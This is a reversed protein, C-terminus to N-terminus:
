KMMFEDLNLIANAVVTMAATETSKNEISLDSLLEKNAKPDNQFEKLANAYLAELVGLKELQIPQGIAVKYGNKIQEKLDTSTQQMRLAFHKAAEVFVPDNLTVLAQLPTNTRIRRSACVQRPSVDFTEMSPYPSSRKMFTYIARRFKDKGESQQWNQSNYPTSWLGEPQYPMVPKGYMKRNLLGSVALTQDRIQEASLRVRPGRTFLKNYPDQALKEETAKASQRYTASLVIEKLLRKTSWNYDNMYQYALWDLLEPHTPKAGQTGLDEITEVLGQGFLQGWLRNAMTRATLPNEPTTMWQALGLRNKPADKPFPNLIKPVEPKVTDKLTQWSGRDFVRTTRSREPANEMMVLTTTPQVKMLDWFYQENKDYEPETAGPFDKTFYFWDIQFGMKDPNKLNPNEYQLYLNHKGQTRKLPIELFQYGGKKIYPLQYNALIEGKDSDLRVTFQGGKLTTYGRVVLKNKGTLTINKMRAQGNQRFGLYKTDYFAANILEDTDISYITPQWTKLFARIEEAYEKSEVKGIWNTLAALKEKDAPEYMRLLPYDKHTDMDRTNNFFAMMQYYEKHDFPDYPHSHCQICAFATGLLAEGTTNVRDIVAAVRYEENNTGGEDNTTTNRHFGTAIYQDDTPNPLLDGALQETLFQDYPLDKNFAKILYDRYSYISRNADREFGKSDAYRALDLWMSAWREGFHSVALLSDVLQEYTIPNKKNLFQKSLNEPAPLGILDLSLRRLITSKDALQNPSFGKEELTNLVFYDIDNIAWTDETKGEGVTGLAKQIKPVSVKAIPQYAWHVGWNAGEDVWKELLSTEEKSLAPAELPMRLEEDEQKLRKILESGSANGPIIAAHGSETAALAKERTMLSYGGSEKVGGHCSLCNKNLIPKIQTNFDIKHQDSFTCQNFLLFLGLLSTGIIIQHSFKQQM